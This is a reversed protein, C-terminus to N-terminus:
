GGHEKKAKQQEIVDPGTKPYDPDASAQGPNEWPKLTGQQGTDKQKENQKRDVM